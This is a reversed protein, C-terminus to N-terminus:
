FQDSKLKTGIPKVMAPRKIIFEKQYLVPLRIERSLIRFKRKKFRLCKFVFDKNEKKKFINWKFKARPLKLKRRLREVRIEAIVRILGKSIFYIQLLGTPLIIQSGPLLVNQVLLILFGGFTLSVNPDKSSISSIILIAAAITGKSAAEEPSSANALSDLGQVFLKSPSTPDFTKSGAATQAVVMTGYQIAFNIARMKAEVLLQQVPLQIMFSAAEQGATAVLIIAFAKPTIVPNPM